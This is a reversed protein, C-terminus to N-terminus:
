SKSLQIDRIMGLIIIEVHVMQFEESWCLKKCFILLFTQRYNRLRWVYVFPNISFNLFHIQSITLWAIPYDDLSWGNVLAYVSAPVLAFFQIFAVIMITKLFNEQLSLKQSRSRQSFRRGQKKLSFYTIVYILATVSAVVIFVVDYIAEGTKNWGFAFFRALVCFSLLWIAAICIAIRRGNLFVRHKFPHVTLLYRDIAISFISLLSALMATDMVRGVVPFEYGIRMRITISVCTFFDSLASNAILYTASNRFCKLPDKVLCIFLLLHSFIGAVPILYLPMYKLQLFM